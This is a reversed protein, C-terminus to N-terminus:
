RSDRDERILAAADFPGVDALLAQGESLAREIEDRTPIRLEQEAAQRLFASRSLKRKRARADIRKLLEDPMSIM